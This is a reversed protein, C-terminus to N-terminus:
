HNKIFASIYGYLSNWGFIMQSIMEVHKKNQIVHYESSLKKAIMLKSLRESQMKISPYTEAGSFILYPHTVNSFYTLPSGKKWTEEDDSFTYLFSNTQKGKEASSLYEFMDLGFTDNLIVGKVPNSIGIAAFYSPDADILAALHGGASHGMLYIKDPDGGYQDINDKVWKVALACETAMQQYRGQPSLTYNIIVTVIGNNAMNRGLWWYTEKKGSDWSGGHVFIVVSKKTENSRPYYIDLLNNKGISETIYRIDKAKKAAFLFSLNVVVLLFVLFASYRVIM